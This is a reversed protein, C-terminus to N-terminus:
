GKESFFQVLQEIDPYLPKLKPKRKPIPIEKVEIEVTQFNGNYFDFDDSGLEVLPLDPSPSSLKPFYAGQIFPTAYGAAYIAALLLARNRITKM